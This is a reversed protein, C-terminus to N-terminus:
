SLLPLTRKEQASQFATDVIQQGIRSTEISLPGEIPLDHEICHILYQVPNQHPADLTDVPVDIGEPHQRTQM